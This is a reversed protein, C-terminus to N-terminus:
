VLLPSRGFAHNRSSSGYINLVLWTCLPSNFEYWHFFCTGWFVNPDNKVRSGVTCQLPDYAIPIHGLLLHHSYFMRGPYSPFRTHSEFKPLTFLKYRRTTNLSQVHHQFSAHIIQGYWNFTQFQSHARLKPPWLGMTTHMIRFYLPTWYRDQIM